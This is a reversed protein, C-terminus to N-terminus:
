ELFHNPLNETRLIHFFYQSTKCFKYINVNALPSKLYGDTQNSSALVALVQIEGERRPILGM